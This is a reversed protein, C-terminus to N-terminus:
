ARDLAMLALRARRQTHRRTIQSALMWIWAGTGVCVTLLGLIESLHISNDM